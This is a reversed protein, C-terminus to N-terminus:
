FGLNNLFMLPIPSQGDALDQVARPCFFSVAIGTFM